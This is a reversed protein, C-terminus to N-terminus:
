RRICSALVLAIDPRPLPGYEIRADSFWFSFFFSFFFSLSFFPFFFFFGESM